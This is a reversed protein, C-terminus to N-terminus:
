LKSEKPAVLVGRYRMKGEDLRSMAKEIGERDMKFINVMPKIGHQAAFTLMRAHVHRPAVLSGQVTIGGGLLAMHPFKFDGEDVNLPFIKAGPSLIPVYLSWDPSASTTVLLTDILGSSLVLKKVDKTTHFETAGLSLAESKKSDTGSFVVTECGM